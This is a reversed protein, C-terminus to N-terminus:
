RRALSVKVFTSPRLRLATANDISTEWEWERAQGTWVKSRELIPWHWAHQCFHVFICRFIRLVKFLNDITIALDNRFRPVIWLFFFNLSLHFIDNAAM